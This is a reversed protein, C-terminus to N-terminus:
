KSFRAPATEWAEDSILASLAFIDADREEVTDNEVDLNDLFGAELGHNFHLLVHGVEHFLTFWFSDLRDYRLTLAIVPTGDALQLAAGDLLPTPLHPFM